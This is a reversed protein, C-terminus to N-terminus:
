ENENIENILQQLNFPTESPKLMFQYTDHDAYGIREGANVLDFTKIREPVVSLYVTKKRDPHQMVVVNKGDTEGAFLILGSRPVFIPEGAVSNIVTSKGSLAEQHFSASVPMVTEADTGIEDSFGLYKGWQDYHAAFEFSSYLVDQAEILQEISWLDDESATFLVAILGALITKILFKEPFRRNIQEKKRITDAYKKEPSM